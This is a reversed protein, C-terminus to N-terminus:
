LEGKIIEFKDLMNFKRLDASSNEDGVQYWEITPSAVGNGLEKIFSYNISNPTKVLWINGNYDKIFKAKKNTLFASIENRLIHEQTRNIKGKDGNSRLDFEVVGSDYGLTANTEIIPYKNGFPESIGYAQMTEYNAYTLENFISYMQSHDCIYAGSFESEVQSTMYVGETGNSNIPVLAYEYTTNTANYTDYLYFQLDELSSIKFSQLPIWLDDQLQKRKILYEGNMIGNINLYKFYPQPTNTSFLNTEGNQLYINELATAISNHLQIKKPTALKYLITVTNNTLWYKFTTLDVAISSHIGLRLKVTQNGGLTMTNKTLVEPMSINMVEGFNFLQNSLGVNMNNSIMNDLATTYFFYYSPSNIFAGPNSWDWDPDLVVEETMKECYWKGDEKYIRDYVTPSLRSLTIPNNSTDLIPITQTNSIYPQYTTNTIGSEIIQLNKVFWRRNSAYPLRYCPMISYYEYKPLDYTNSFFTYNEGTQVDFSGVTVFTHWFTGNWGALGFSMITDNQVKHEFSITVKEASAYFKAGAFGGSYGSGRGTIETESLKEIKYLEISPPDANLNGNINFLNKGCSEIEIPSEVSEIEIPSTPTGDGGITNGQLELGGNLLTHYTNPITIFQGQLTEGNYLDKSENKLEIKGIECLNTAKFTNQTEDIYYMQMELNGIVSRLATGGVTEGTAVIFYERYKLEELNNPMPYDSLICDRGQYIRGSDALLEDSDDFKRGYLQVTYYNLLEGEIQSYNLSLKLQPTKILGGNFIGGLSFTPTTYCQLLIINSRKSTLSLTNNTTKVTMQYKKGNELLELDESSLTYSHERITPLNDTETHTITKVLYEEIGDQSAITIITSETATNSIGVKVICGENKDFAPINYLIPTTLIAM